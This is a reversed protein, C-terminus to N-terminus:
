EGNTSLAYWQALLEKVQPRRDLYEWDLGSRFMKQRTESEYVWVLFSPRQEFPINCLVGKDYGRYFIEDEREGTTM